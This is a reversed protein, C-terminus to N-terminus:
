CCCFSEMDINSSLCRFFNMKCKMHITTHTRTHVYVWSAIFENLETSQKTYCWLVILGTNTPLWKNMWKMKYKSERKSGFWMTLYIMQKIVRWFCDASCLESWHFNAFWFPCGISLCLGWFTVVISVFFGYRGSSM